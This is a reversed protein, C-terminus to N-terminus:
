ASLPFSLEGSRPDAIVTVGLIAPMLSGRDAAKRIVRGRLVELQHERKAVQKESYDGDPDVLADKAAKAEDTTVDASEVVKKIIPRQVKLISVPDLVGAIVAGLEKAGFNRIGDKGPMAFDDFEAKLAVIVEDPFQEVLKQTIGLYERGHRAEQARNKLAPTKLVPGYLAATNGYSPVTVGEQQTLYIQTPVISAIPVHVGIQMHRAHDRYFEEMNEDGLSSIFLSWTRDHGDEQPVWLKDLWRTPMNFSPDVLAMKNSLRGLERSYGAIYAETHGIINSANVLASRGDVRNGEYTAMLDAYAMRLGAMIDLLPVDPEYGLTERLVTVPNLPQSPTPSSEIVGLYERDSLGSLEKGDGKPLSLHTAVAEGFANNYAGLMAQSEAPFLESLLARNVERIM